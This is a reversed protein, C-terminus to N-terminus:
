NGDPAIRPWSTGRSDGSAAANRATRDSQGLLAGVDDPEIDASVIRPHFVRQRAFASAGSRIRTLVTCGVPTLEGIIVFSAKPRKTWSNGVM